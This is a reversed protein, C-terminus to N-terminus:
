ILYRISKKKQMENKIYICVKLRFDNFKRLHTLKKKTWEFKHLSKM